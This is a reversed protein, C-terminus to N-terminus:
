HHFKTHDPNPSLISTYHTKIKVGKLSDELQLTGLQFKLGAGSGGEKYTRVPNKKKKKKYFNRNTHM